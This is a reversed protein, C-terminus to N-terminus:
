TGTERTGFAVRRVRVDVKGNWDSPADDLKVGFQRSYGTKLPKNADSASFESVLVPHYTKEFVPKGNQDLCYITIEVENLIRDGTNNIEGFVGTENLVSKGVKVNKIVVKSLYASVEPDDAKARPDMGLISKQSPEQGQGLKFAARSGLPSVFGIVVGWTIAGIVVLILFAPIAAIAWKVMFIVMSSFPMHVDTVVVEQKIPEESM